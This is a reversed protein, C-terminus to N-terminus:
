SKANAGHCNKFKRGSGCPCREDPKVNTFDLKKSPQRWRPIGPYVQKSEPAADEEEEDEWDEDWEDEEYDEDDNDMRTPLSRIVTTVVHLVGLGVLGVGVLSLLTAEFTSLPLFRTLVWGIGSSLVVLLGGGIGLLVIVGVTIALTLFIVKM